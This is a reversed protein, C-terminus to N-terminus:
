ESGGVSQTVLDQPLRQMMLLSIGALM